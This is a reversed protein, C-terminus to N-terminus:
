SNRGAAVSAPWVSRGVSRVRSAAEVSLCDRIAGGHIVDDGNGGHITDEGDGGHLTDNGQNGSITDHGDEGFVVDDGEKMNIVDNGNGGYFTEEYGTATSRSGRMEDPLDDGRAVAGLSTGTPELSYLGNATSFAIMDDSWRSGILELSKLNGGTDSLYCCFADSNCGGWVSIHSSDVYNVAHAEVPGEGACIPALDCTLKTGDLTCPTESHLTCAAPSTGAGPYSNNPCAGLSQASAM